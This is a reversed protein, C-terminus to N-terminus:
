RRCAAHSRAATQVRARGNSCRHGDPPPSSAFRHGVSKPDLHSLGVPPTEDRASGVERGLLDRLSRECRREAAVRFGVHAGEEPAHRLLENDRAIALGLEEVDDVIELALEPRGPGEVLGLHEVGQAGLRGAQEARGALGGVLDPGLAFLAARMM